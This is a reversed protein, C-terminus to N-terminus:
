ADLEPDASLSKASMMSPVVAGELAPPEAEGAATAAAHRLIGSGAAGSAAASPAPAPEAEDGASEDASEEAAHVDRPRLGKMAAIELLDAVDLRTARKCLRKHRRNEQLLLSTVFQHASCAQAASQVSISFL